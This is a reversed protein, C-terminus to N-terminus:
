NTPESAQPLLAGGGYREHDRRLHRIQLSLESTDGDEVEFAPNQKLLIAAQARAADSLWDPVGEYEDDTAVSLGGDYTVVVWMDTLDITNVTLMGRTADIILYDSEGDENVNQLDRILDTQNNRVYVPSPTYFASFSAGTNIFGRSLRMSRRQGKGAGFMRDCQFFDRRATYADFSTYRFMSAVMRTAAKSAERVAENFDSVTMDIGFQQAFENLNFLHM